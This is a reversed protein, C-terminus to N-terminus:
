NSKMQGTKLSSKMIVVLNSFKSSRIENSWDQSPIEYYGGLETSTPIQLGTWLYIPNKDSVFLLLLLYVHGYFVINRILFRNM